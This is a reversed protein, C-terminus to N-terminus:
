RPEEPTHSAHVVGAAVELMLVQPTRVGPRSEGTPLAYGGSWPTLTTTVPPWIGRAPYKPMKGAPHWQDTVPDYATVMGDFGPHSPGPPTAALRGNDGGLVYLRGGRYIAPNPGAAAPLPLTACPTWGVGPQFRYADSLYVRAPVGQADPVLDVGSFVYFAEGDAGAVSLMRPPGPWTEEEQWVAGARGLDLSWFVDLPRPADPQARGGAVYVVDGLRVGCGFALPGPLPPGPETELRGERFRLFFTEAYHGEADGGGICLVGAATNVSLGYALPRPLKGATVWEGGPTSLAYVTDHWVKDGNEWPPAGPFNAGGAVLLTDEDVGVFPAAVGLPDPLPELFRYQITPSESQQEEGAYALMSCRSFIILCGITIIHLNKQKNKDEKLWIMDVIRESNDSAVWGCDRRGLRTSLWLRGCGCRRLQTLLWSESLDKKTSILGGVAVMDLFPGPGHWFEAGCQKREAYERLAGNGLWSNVADLILLVFAYMLSCEAPDDIPNGFQHGPLQAIVGFSVGHVSFGPEHQGQGLHLEAM